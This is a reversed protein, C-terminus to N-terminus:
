NGGKKTGGGGITTGSSGSGGGPLSGGSGGAGAGGPAAGGGGPGGAGGPAGGGGPAASGGAADFEPAKQPVLPSLAIKLSSNIQSPFVFSRAFRVARKQAGAGSTFEMELRPRLEVEIEIKMAFPLGDKEESNWEDFEEARVGPEAYYSVNFSKVQDYLLTYEGGEFPKDDVFFSERRWIQLFDPKEPNMRLRYGVECLDARLNKEGQRFPLKSNTTTVFDVSDAEMGKASHNKGLFVRKAAINYTQLGQLDRELLGLVAVGASQEQTLNYVTDRGALSSMLTAIISVMVMATILTAVLVEILTFGRESARM